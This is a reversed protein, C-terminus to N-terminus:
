KGWGRQRQRRRPVRSGGLSSSSTRSVHLDAADAAVTVQEVLLLLFVVDKMRRRCQSRFRYLLPIRGKSFKHEVLCHPHRWPTLPGWGLQSYLSIGTVGYGRTLPAPPLAGQLQIVKAKEVNLPLRLNAWKEFLKSHLFDSATQTLKAFLFNSCLERSARFGIANGTWYNYNRFDCIVHVRGMPVMICM